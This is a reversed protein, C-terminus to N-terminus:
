KPGAGPKGIVTSNILINDLTSSGPTGQGLTDTGEDAIISMSQVTLGAPLPPFSDAGTFSVHTWQPDSTATHLGYICGFFYINNDSAIVNFRPSGAGCHGATKYDFGLTLGTTSLGEVGKIIAFAAANTTTPGNKQLILGHDATDGASNPFGTGPVWASTIIGTHDPDYTGPLVTIPQVAIAAVSTVIILASSLLLTKMLVLEKSGLNTMEPLSIM